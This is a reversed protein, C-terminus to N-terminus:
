FISFLIDAINGDKLAKQLWKSKFVTTVEPIGQIKHLMKKKLSPTLKSNSTEHGFMHLICFILPKWITFKFSVPNQLLAIIM